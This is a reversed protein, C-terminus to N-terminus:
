VPFPHPSPHRPTPLPTLPPASAFNTRTVVIRTLNSQQSRGSLVLTLVCSWRLETRVMVPRPVPLVRLVALVVLNICRVRVVKLEAARNKVRSPLLVRLSVKLPLKIPSANPACLFAIRPVLNPRHPPRRFLPIAKNLLSLVWTRNTYPLPALPTTELLHKKAVLPISLSAKATYRPPAVLPVKRVKLQPRCGPEQTILKPTCERFKFPKKIGDRPASLTLYHLCVCRRLPFHLKLSWQEERAQPTPFLFALQRSLTSM